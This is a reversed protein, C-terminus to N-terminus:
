SSSMNSFLSSLVRNIEAINIPKAIVGDMGDKLCHQVTEKMVDGTFAVIKTSAAKKDPLSRIQQTTEFGDMDPMRLDMLIVDFTNQTIKELAELGNSAVVVEYGESSLLSAVITQSVLEDEVLLLSLQLPAKAKQKEKQEPIEFVEKFSLVVRFTSGAGFTSEVGITGKMLDVLQKCIALGLGTGHQSRSITSDVQVFPAFITPLQEHPIGVGNDTVLFELNAMGNDFGIKRVQIKVEGQETFKIANSVLNWLVQQFRKSDGHIINPVDDGLSCTLKLGKKEADSSMVTMLQDLFTSLEFDVLKLDLKGDEIKSLDLISDLIYLLNNTAYSITDVLKLQEDPMEKRRLLEVSGQVANMPTRIEHSMTALFISKEKSVAEAKERAIDAEYKANDAVQRKHNNEVFAALLQNLTSTLLGLENDRHTPSVSIHHPVPHSPDVASLDKILNLLHRTLTAHFIYLLIFALLINRLFGTLIVWGTRKLFSWAILANDIEVHLSGISTGKKHFHLPVIYTEEPLLYHAIM